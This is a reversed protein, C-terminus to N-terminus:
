IPANPNVYDTDSGDFPAHEFSITNEDCGGTATMRVISNEIFGAYQTLDAGNIRSKETGADSSSPRTSYAAAYTLAAFLFVVILILFLVNGQEAERQRRRAEMCYKLILSTATLHM